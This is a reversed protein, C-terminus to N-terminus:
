DPKAEHPVLRLVFDYLTQAHQLAEDFEERSPMAEDSGGPYRFASVYPTLVAAAKTLQNFEENLKAAQSVLVGIDHTKTFPDDRFQLWGKMTKEAAQQCHYIATDLLPTDLASLARAASLDHSARTLWDRVLALRADDM